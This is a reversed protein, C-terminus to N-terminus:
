SHCPLHGYALAALMRDQGAWYSMIRPPPTYVRQMDAALILLPDLEAAYRPYLRLCTEHDVVVTLLSLCEGLAVDRDLGMTIEAQLSAPFGSCETM